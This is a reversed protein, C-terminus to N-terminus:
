TTHFSCSLPFKSRPSSGTCPPYKPQPPLNYKYVTSLPSMPPEWLHYGLLATSEGAPPAGSSTCPLRGEHDHPINHGPPSLGRVRFAWKEAGRPTRKVAQLVERIKDLPQIMRIKLLPSDMEGSGPDNMNDEVVSFGSGGFDRKM